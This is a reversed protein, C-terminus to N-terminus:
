LDGTGPLDFRVVADYMAGGVSLAVQPDKLMAIRWSACTFPASWNSEIGRGMGILVVLDAGEAAQALEDSVTALDILPSASGSDAIRLFPSAFARDAQSAREALGRLEGATVDNLAPDHNAAVIVEIGNGILYRALPLLGLVVDAGANDAFIVARRPVHELLWASAKALGDFLWPRPPLAGLAEDFPVTGQAYRSAAGPVGMDFLNGALVGRVLHELLDDGPIGDLTRLRAPLAALAAENERDKILRFEDVIESERLAERRLVDLLLIDLRGHRHPDRRIQELASGLRGRARECADADFGVSAAAQLQIDFASEFLGLWYTRATEDLLLDTECARYVAPHALLPFVAM